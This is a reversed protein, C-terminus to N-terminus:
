VINQVGFGRNNESSNNCNFQTFLINFEHGHYYEEQMMRFSTSKVNAMFLLLERTSSGSKEKIENQYTFRASDRSLNPFTSPIINPNCTIEHRQGVFIVIWTLLYRNSQKITQILITQRSYFLQRFYQRRTSLRCAHCIANRRVSFCSIVVSNQVVTGVRWFRYVDLLCWFQVFECDGQFQFLAM